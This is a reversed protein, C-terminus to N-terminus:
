LLAKITWTKPGMAVKDGVEAGHWAQALPAQPSVGLVMQGKWATKGLAIGVLVWPGDTAVLVGPAVREPQVEEDEMRTLERLAHQARTLTDNVQRMEQHIMARGTEHKDGASSKTEARLSDQLSHLQAEIDEMEALLKERLAGLVMRRTM